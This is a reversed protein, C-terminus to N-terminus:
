FVGDLQFVAELGRDLLFLSGGDFDLGRPDDLQDAVIQQQGIDDVHIVEQGGRHLVAAAGSDLAAVDPCDNGVDAVVNVAGFTLSPASPVSLDYTVDVFSVQCNQQVIWLRNGLLSASTPNTFGSLTGALAPSTVADRYCRVQGQAPLTVCLMPAAGTADWSLRGPSTGFNIWGNQQVQNGDVLAIEQDANSAIFLEGTETRAVGTPEAVDVRNATIDFGLPVAVSLTTFPSYGVNGSQDAARM